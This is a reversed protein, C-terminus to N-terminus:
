GRMLRQLVNKIIVRLEADTPEAREWYELVTDPNGHDFADERGRRYRDSADFADLETATMERFRKRAM